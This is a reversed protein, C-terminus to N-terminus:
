AGEIKGRVHPACQSCPISKNEGAWAIGWRLVETGPPLVALINMEAHMPGGVIHEPPVGLAALMERQETSLRGSSASALYARSGDPLKVQALAVTSMRHRIDDKGKLLDHVEVAAARLGGSQALVATAAKTGKAARANGVKQKGKGKKSAGAKKKTDPNMAAYIDWVEGDLEATLETFGHEKKIAALAKSIETSDQPDGTSKEALEGLAKMGAAWRKENALNPPQGLEPSQQGTAGKAPDSPKSGTVAPAAKPGDAAPPAPADIKKEDWNGKKDADGGKKPPVKDNLLDSMFRDSNFEVEKFELEPVKGSGLVHEVHAGIGFEGPLPYELQGLPWNWREDPAPSWWPSDLEVFLEGGLGLFPQAAIQLDGAIFFEGKKGAAPDAVERYGITPTADVYGRIGALATVAAGAKIDHDLIEVGVGGEAKVRLGAFASINLTGTLSFNQLVKPDTSYTGVIEMRDLTAPGIKALAELGINAFLFVNGVLPVGYLARVEVKPLPKIYDRQEFLPKDMKPTIKGVVTVDGKPSVVVLADGSLWDALQVKVTGWGAIVRPGPKPGVLQAPAAPVAPAAEVVGVPTPAGTSAPGAGAAPPPQPTKSVVLASASAEDTAVITLEGAFKENAYKVTGEVDVLGRGFAVKLVGSFGKLELPVEGTGTLVGDPGRKIELTITALGKVSGTAMAVFTVAQNEIGFSGSATLFGGVKFSVQDSTVILKDGEVKNEALPLRPKNLGLWGLAEAHEELADLFAAGPLPKGGKGGLTAYGGMVGGKLTVALVPRLPLGQLPSLLALTLPLGEASGDRTAYGEGTKVVHMPGAAVTGFRVNVRAGKSGKAELYQRVAESPQFPQGGVLVTEEAPADAELDKAPGKAPAGSPRAPTAMAAALPTPPGPAAPAPAPAAPTPPVEATKGPAQEPSALTAGNV